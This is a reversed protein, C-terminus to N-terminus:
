TIAAGIGPQDNTDEPTNRFIYVRPNLDEISPNLPSGELRPKTHRCPLGTSVM